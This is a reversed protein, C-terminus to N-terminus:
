DSWPFPAKGKFLPGSLQPQQGAQWSPLEFYASHLIPNGESGSPQLPAEITILEVRCSDNDFSALGYGNSNSDLYALGPNASNPGLWNGIGRYGTKDYALSALVGQQMTMNWTEKVEGDTERAALQMLDSSGDAASYLVNDFHTTSSIGTVNFDVAVAPTGEQDPDTVLTAAGQMHHDGSLSVVGAIEQQELWQMLERYEGPFGNWADTGIVSDHMGGLPISGLDLRIPLIPLSNGWIKWSADSEALRQKFWQKQTAGLMTGPERQRAGNDVSGDGFPLKEPPQGNNYARGGDYIDVLEIPDAGLQLQERLGHPLPHRSRYSRLDTLLLEGLKGWRLSRYIHLDPAPAPVRAPMYEFWARHARQQRNPEALPEDGYFSFHQFSDNSFEHDDWTCVFPWRARADQLQLDNLHSKYLHRYDALSDAWVRVGDTAGDPLPPLKRVFRQGFGAENVYREYIFDGLHLVFQIQQDAPRQRDEHLMRAWAGYFGQEYNQCSAFALHVPAAVDPDPATMTRGVRSTGGLTALFRYFYHRGPDLGDIEARVTHDQDARATITAELLVTAFDESQSLQVILPIDAKDPGSARTWLLVSDPLPDASAVGQPFRVANGATVTAAAAFPLGASLYATGAIRLFGRRDLDM